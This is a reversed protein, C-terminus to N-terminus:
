TKAPMHLRKLARTVTYALWIATPPTTVITLSLIKQSFKGMNFRTRLFDIEDFDNDVIINGASLRQLLDKKGPDQELNELGKVGEKLSNFIEPELKALGNSIANYILYKDEEEIYIFHNYESPKFQGM